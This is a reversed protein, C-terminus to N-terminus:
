CERELGVTIGSGLAQLGGAADLRALREEIQARL